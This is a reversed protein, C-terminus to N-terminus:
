ITTNAVGAKQSLCLKSDVHTAEATTRVTTKVFANPAELHTIITHLAETQLSGAEQRIVAKLTPTPTSETHVTLMATENHCRSLQRRESM